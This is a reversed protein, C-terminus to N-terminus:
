THVYTVIELIRRPAYGFTQFWGSKANMERGGAGWWREELRGSGGGGQGGGEWKQM